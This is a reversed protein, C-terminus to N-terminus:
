LIDIISNLLGNIQVDTSTNDTTGMVSILTLDDVIISLEAPVKEGPALRSTDLPITVRVSVPIHEEEMEADSDLFVVESGKGNYGLDNVLVYHNVSAPTTIEYRVPGNVYPVYELPIASSIDVVVNNLVIVPDGKCWVVGANAPTALGVLMVLAVVVSMMQRM